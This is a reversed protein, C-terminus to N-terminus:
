NSVTKLKPEYVAGNCVGVALSEKAKNSWKTLDPKENIWGITSDLCLNWSAAQRSVPILEIAICSVGLAIVGLFAKQM